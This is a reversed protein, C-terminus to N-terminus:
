LRRLLFSDVGLYQFYKRWWDEHANTFRKEPILFVKVRAGRLMGKVDLNRLSRNLLQGFNNWNNGYFSLQDTHQLLNSVLILEHNEIDDFDPSTVINRITEVLPTTIANEKAEIQDIARDLPKQFHEKFNGEIQSPLEYVFNAHSGDRPRRENFYMTAEGNKDNEGKQIVFLTLKDNVLLAKASAYIEEKVAKLQSKTLGDTTDVIYTITMSRHNDPESSKMAMGITAISSGLLIVCAFIVWISRKTPQRLRESIPRDASYNFLARSHGTLRKGAKRKQTSM